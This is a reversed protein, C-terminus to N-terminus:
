PRVAPRPMPAIHVEPLTALQGREALRLISTVGAQDSVALYRGDPSFAAVSMPVGTDFLRRRDQEADPQWLTLKLGLGADAVLRLTPSTCLPPAASRLPEVRCKGALLVTDTNRDWVLSNRWLGRDTKEVSLLGIEHGGPLVEIHEIQDRKGLLQTSSIKKGERVNWFSVIGNRLGVMLVEGDPSFVLATVEHVQPLVYQETRPERQFLSVTGDANATAIVNGDHSVAVSRITQGMRVPLTGDAVWQVANWVIVQSQGSGLRIGREIMWQGDASFVLQAATADTREILLHPTQILVDWTILRGSMDATVISQGNPRWALATLASRHGQVISREKGTTTDLFRLVAGPPFANQMVLTTGDPSLAIRSDENAAVTVTPDAKKTAIDWRKITALGTKQERAVLVFAKCDHTFAMGCEGYGAEDFQGVVEGKTDYLQVGWKVTCTRAAMYKGDPSFAVAFGMRVTRWLTPKPGTADKWLEIQADRRLLCLVPGDPHGPWFAMEVVQQQTEWGGARKGTEVEYRSVLLTDQTYLVIHKDDPSFAAAWTKETADFTRVKRGSSTEWLGVKSSNAWVVLHRNDPSFIARWGDAFNQTGQLRSVLVGSTANFVCTGGRGVIALMKGDGSYVPQGHGIAHRFSTNGLVAVVEKPAQKPDGGGVYARAAEPVKKHELGDAANPREALERASPALVQLNPLTGKESLRLVSIIGEPNGVALYRGEPSFAVSGVSDTTSERSPSLLLKRHLEPASGLQVLGVGDIGITALFRSGPSLRFDSPKGQQNLLSRIHYDKQKEGSVSDIHMVGNNVVAALSKGDPLWEVDGFAAGGWFHGKELWTQTEWVKIGDNGSAYLRSSDPSFLLCSVDKRYGLLRLEKGDSVQWVRISDGDGVGAILSGDPSFAVSRIRKTKTDLVHQLRQDAVSYVWILANDIPPKPLSPTGALAFLKGDQSFALRHATQLAWERTCRAQALDWLKTGNRDSSALYKGDGSFALASISATHWSSEYRPKGTETDFFELQFSDNWRRALTKGDTSLAIEQDKLTGTISVTKLNKGDAASCRTVIISGNGRGVAVLTNSDPTFALAGDATAKVIQARQTASPKSTDYIAIYQNDPVDARFAAALRTGDPSFALGVLKSGFVFGKFWEDVKGVKGTALDRVELLRPTSRILRITNGDPSFSFFEVAAGGGEPEWAKRGNRTDILDFRGGVWVVGLHRGDPSFAMRQLQTFDAKILRLWAGTQVDILRMEGRENAVAIQKGDPSFAMPSSHGSVRFRTDGLVAVLEQPIEKQDGRGIYARALEPIDSQKLADAANPCKALEAPDTTRSQLELIQEILSQDPKHPLMEQTVVTVAVTGDRRRFTIVGRGPLDITLGDPQDFSAVRYNKTDVEWVQGTKSDRIRVIEGNKKTIIEINPDDTRIVLEGKETQIRLIVAGATMLGVLLLLSAAVLWRRRPKAKAPATRALPELAAAVEAPTAYREAPNKATMKGVVSKLEDPWADPIPLPTEAHQKFKDNHTGSPFPPQGALLHFLTCGLAYIDARIDAARADALQEPAIYDATGIVAGALTLSVPVLSDQGPPEESQSAFRALGFDLIKIVGDPTLMLNHPKIDRHVM